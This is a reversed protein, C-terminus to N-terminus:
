IIKVSFCSAFFKPMSLLMIRFRIKLFYPPLIRGPNTHNLIPVMPLSMDVRYLACLLRPIQTATRSDSEWCSQEM